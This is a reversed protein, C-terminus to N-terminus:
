RLKRLYKRKEDLDHSSMEHFQGDYYFGDVIERHHNFDLITIKENEIELVPVKSYEQYGLAYGSCGGDINLVNEKEDYSFGEKLPTHGVITFFGRKGLHHPIHFDDVSRTWVAKSVSLNNDKIKMTCINNVDKPAQAHVLLIPHDLIKESFIHYIDLNGIFSNYSHIKDMSSHDFQDMIKRGGNLRWNSFIPFRMKRQYCSLNRYMMLEHNGGLYCVKVNHYGLFARRYVDFLMDFSQEGRDILDGNIYLTVPEDECIIDLYNMLPYYVDGCGHLDSVIFKRM